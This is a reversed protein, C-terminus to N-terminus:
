GFMTSRVDHHMGKHLNAEADALAAARSRWHAVVNKRLAVIYCPKTSMRFKLCHLLPALIHMNDYPHECALAAKVFQEPSHYVGVLITTFKKDKSCGM